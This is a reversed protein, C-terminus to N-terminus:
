EDKAQKISFRCGYVWATIVVAIIILSCIISWYDAPPSLEACSAITNGDFVSNCKQLTLFKDVQTFAVISPTEETRFPFTRLTNTFVKFDNTKALSSNLQREVSITRFDSSVVFSLDTRCSSQVANESTNIKRLYEKNLTFFYAEQSQYSTIGFIYSNVFYFQSLYDFIKDPILDSITYQLFQQAATPLESRHVKALQLLFESEIYTPLQVVRAENIIVNCEEDYDQTFGIMQEKSNIALFGNYGAISLATFARSESTSEYSIILKQILNSADQAFPLNENIRVSYGFKLSDTYSIAMMPDLIVEIYSQMKYYEFPQLLTKQIFISCFEDQCESVEYEYTIISGVFLKINDLHEDLSQTYQKMFSQKDIHKYSYTQVPQPWVQALLILM